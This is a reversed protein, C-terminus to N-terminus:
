RIKILSQGSVARDARGVEDDQSLAARCGNNCTSPEEERPPGTYGIMPCNAGHRYGAPAPPRMATDGYNLVTPRDLAISRYKM